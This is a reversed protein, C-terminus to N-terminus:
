AEPAAEKTKNSTEMFSRKEMWLSVPDSWPSVGMIVPADSAGIGQSRWMLWEDTRQDLEIFIPKRDESQMKRSM